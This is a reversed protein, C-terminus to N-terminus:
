SYDTEISTLFLPGLRSNAMAGNLDFFYLGGTQDCLWFERAGREFYLAQKERMEEAMNSPNHGM